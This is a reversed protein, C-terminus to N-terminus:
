QKAEDGKAQYVDMQDQDYVRWTPYAFTIDSHKSFETLINEWIEHSAKRRKRYEVIYHGDLLVGFDKVETYIHPEFKGDAQMIMFKHSAERLAKEAPKRVEETYSELIEGVIKKAKEWNSEFTLRIKLEDWLYAFDDSYNSLSQHFILGNPVHIMRGTNQDGDIWRGIEMVTFQMLQQDVVDGKTSGIEIRDGVNFPKQWLIYAWGAINIIPDKLAFAIGASAFGIITTISKFGAFWIRGIVIIGLFVTAYDMAKHLRYELRSSTAKRTIMKNTLFKLASLLVLALLTFALREMLLPNMEMSEPSWAAHLSPTDQM